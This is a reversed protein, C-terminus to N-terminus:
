EYWIRDQLRRDVLDDLRYRKDAEHAERREALGAEYQARFARNAATVEPPTSDNVSFLFSLPHHGHTSLDKRKVTRKDECGALFTELHKDANGIHKTLWDKLYAATERTITTSGDRLGIEFTEITRLLVVHEKVHQRTLPYDYRKMLGEEREFHAVSDAVLKGVLERFLKQQEARDEGTRCRWGAVDSLHAVIKYLEAHDENMVLYIRPGSSGGGFFRDFFAM